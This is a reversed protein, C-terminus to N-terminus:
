AVDLPGGCRKWSFASPAGVTQALAIVNWEMCHSETRNPETRNPETRVPSPPSSPPTSSSSSYHMTASADCCRRGARRRCCRSRPTRSSASSATCGSARPGTAARGSMASPSSTTPSASAVRRSCGGCCTSGTRRVKLCKWVSEFKKLSKWVQLLEKLSMQQGGAEGAAAGEGAPEPPPPLWRPVTAVLCRQLVFDVAAVDTQKVAAAAAGCRRALHDGVTEVRRYLQRLIAPLARPGVAPAAPEAEAAM